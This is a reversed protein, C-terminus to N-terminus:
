VASQADPQEGPLEPDDTEGPETGNGNRRGRLARAAQVQKWLPTLLRERAARHAPDDDRNYRGLILAVIERLYRRGRLRAERVPAFTVGIEGTGHLASRYAPLIEAIRGVHRGLGLETVTGALPGQLMALLKQTASLQDVHPLSTIAYVGEPMATKLFTEVTEHIPDDPAAGQRQSEAGDRVGSIAKDLRPDLVGVGVSDLNGARVSGWQGELDRTQEEHATAEDIRAVVEDNGGVAEAATKMQELAFLRRGTSIAGVDIWTELDM